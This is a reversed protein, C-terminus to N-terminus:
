IQSYATPKLYTKIIHSVTDKYRELEKVQLWGADESFAKWARDHSAMSEHAVMYTLNPLKGGAISEGFFVGNLGVRKFIDFEHVNFMEVKLKAKYENHSEYVRMEFLRDGTLPTQVTPFGEFAVMLQTEIRKYAPKNKETSLYERANELFESDQTLRDGVTLWVAPSMGTLMH